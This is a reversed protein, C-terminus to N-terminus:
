VVMACNVECHAVCRSVIKGFTGTDGDFPSVKRAPWMTYRKLTKPLNKSSQIQGAGSWVIQRLANPIELQVRRRREDSCCNALGDVHRVYWQFCTPLLRLDFELVPVNSIQVNLGCRMTYHQRGKSLGTIM